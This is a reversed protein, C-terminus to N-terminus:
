IVYDFPQQTEAEGQRRPCTACIGEGILEYAFVIASHTSSNQGPRDCFVHKPDIRSDM